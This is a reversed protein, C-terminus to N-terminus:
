PQQSPTSRSSSSEAFHLATIACLAAVALALALEKLKRTRNSRATRLSSSPKHLFREGCARCRFPQRGTTLATLHQGIGSRRSRKTHTSQCAPCSPM